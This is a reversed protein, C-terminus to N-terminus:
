QNFISLPPTQIGIIIFRKEKQNYLLFSFKSANSPFQHYVINTAVTSSRKGEKKTGM